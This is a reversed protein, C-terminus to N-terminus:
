FWNFLFGSVMDHFRDRGNLVGVCSATDTTALFYKIELLTRWM